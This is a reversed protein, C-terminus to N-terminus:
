GCMDPQHLPSCRIALGKFESPLNLGFSSGSLVVTLFSRNSVIEHISDHTGYLKKFESLIADEVPKYLSQYAAETLDSLKQTAGANSAAFGWSAGNFYHGNLDQQVYLLIVGGDLPKEISQWALTGDSKKVVVFGLDKYPSASM